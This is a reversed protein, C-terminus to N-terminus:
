KKNRKIQDMRSLAFTRAESRSRYQLNQYYEQEEGTGYLRVWQKYQIELDYEQDKIRLEAPWSEIYLKHKIFVAIVNFIQIFERFYILIWFLGFLVVLNGYFGPMPMPLKNRYVYGIGYVLILAPIFFIGLYVHKPVIKVFKEKSLLTEEKPDHFYLLLLLILLIFNIFISFIITPIYNGNFVPSTFYLLMSLLIILELLIISIILKNFYLEHKLNM